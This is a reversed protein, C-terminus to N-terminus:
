RAAAKRKPAAKQARKPAAPEGEFDLELEPAGLDLRVVSQCYGPWHGTQECAIFQELWLRLQRAGQDLARETMEMVTVVWPAESEVTIIFAKRPNFKQARVAELQMALQAHYGMKLADWKFRQPDGNRTTKIEAVWSGDGARLDPTSRCARGLMEFMITQERIVGRQRILRRALKNEILARAMEKAKDMEAGTIIHAGEHEAKFAEWEKGRRVAGPYVLVKPGGPLRGFNTYVLNHVTTGLSMSTTEDEDEAGTEIAHKAHAPSRGCAVLHSHRVPVMPIGNREIYAEAPTM